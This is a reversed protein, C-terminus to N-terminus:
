IQELTPNTRVSLMDVRDPIKINKPLMFTEFVGLLM